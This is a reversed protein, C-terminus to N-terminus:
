TQSKKDAEVLGIYEVVAEAVYTVAIESAKEYLPMQRRCLLLNHLAREARLYGGRRASSYRRTPRSRLSLRRPRRAAAQRPRPAEAQPPATPRTTPQPPFM